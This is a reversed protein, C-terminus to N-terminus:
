RGHLLLRAADDPRLTEGKAALMTARENVPTQVGANAGRRAVEGNLWDTELTRGRQASQWTSGYAPVDGLVTAVRRAYAVRALPDPLSTLARVLAPSTWPIAAPKVKEARAVAAAEKMMRVIALSLGRHQAAEQFSVGTLAPVVNGLNVLLKTWRAARVDDTWQTEVADALVDRAREAAARADAHPAGVTLMGTRACEVVGPEVHKADLSVIAAVARAPGVAQTIMEDQALGNQLGVVPADRFTGVHAQLADPLDQTKVAMVVLDPVFGPSARATAAVPVNRPAGYGGGELRVGHRLAVAQESKVVLRADHGKEALLAALLGGLAGAGVVLVNAVAASAREGSDAKRM